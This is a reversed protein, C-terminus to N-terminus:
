VIKITKGDAAMINIQVRNSIVETSKIEDDDREETKTTEKVTLGKILHPIGNEDNVVGNLQSSTLVLGVQGINFPLLPHTDSEEEKINEKLVEEVLGSESCYSCMEEPSIKSGRFYVIEEEKSPITYKSLSINNTGKSFSNEYIFDLLYRYDEAIENNTKTDNKIGTIVVEGNSDLDIMSIQIDKIKKSLHMLIEDSCRSYPLFLVFLGDDRIYRLSNLMEIKEIDRINCDENFITPRCVVIDFSNSIKAGVTLNGLIRYDVYGKLYKYKYEDDSSGYLNFKDRDINSVEDYECNVFFLNLKRDSLCNINSMDKLTYEINWSYKVRSYCYGYVTDKIQNMLRILMRKYGNTFVKLEEMESIIEKMEDTPELNKSINYIRAYSVTNEYINRRLIRVDRKLRSILKNFDIKEENIKKLWEIETDITSNLRDLSIPM